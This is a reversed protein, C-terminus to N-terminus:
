INKKPLRFIFENQSKIDSEYEIIYNRKEAFTEIYDILGCYITNNRTNFLRIKGDWIKNRYSPVFQYGPVYFTFFESLEKLASPEGNVQLYVEDKKSISLKEKM